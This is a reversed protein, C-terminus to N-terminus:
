HCETRLLAKHKPSDWSSLIGQLRFGLNPGVKTRCTILLKWREERCREGLYDTNEVLPCSTLSLPLLSALHDVTEGSGGGPSPISQSGVGLASVRSCFANNM